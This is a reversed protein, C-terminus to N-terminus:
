LLFANETSITTVLHASHNQYNPVPALLAYTYKKLFVHTYMNDKVM